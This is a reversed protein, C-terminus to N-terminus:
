MRRWFWQQRENIKKIKQQDEESFALFNYVVWQKYDRLFMHEGKRMKQTLIEMPDVRKEGDRKIKM